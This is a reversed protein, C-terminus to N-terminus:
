ATLNLLGKFVGGLELFDELALPKRIYRSPNFRAVADKDKQSDSSTLVVVPVHPCTSGDRMRKLIETGPRRPLNLDLILLDPCSQKGADIEDLVNVAKEGNTIVLVECSVEHEELAEIVLEVDAPNDEILLIQRLPEKSIPQTENQQQFRLSFRQVEESNLSWGSAGEL